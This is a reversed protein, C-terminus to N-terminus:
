ALELVTSAAPLEAADPRRLGILRASAVAGILAVAVAVWLADHLGAVYAAAGGHGLAGAAPVLAGFAAVGVAIGGQRFTDNTGAALGSQRAPAATLAVSSLAPNFLGCGIGCLVEGPLVVTWSSGTALFTMAAMGAAVLVLGGCILTGASVRGLLQSAAGAVFFLLVTAPLYVLGAQLASLGLVDQLYLTLYLYIAFFSASIAFAAVQAGAFPAHRFLSLALMPEKARREIALFAVLLVAAASLEGIIAASGWGLANGRLLALVLFLLSGILALQGALDVRRASEDRSERVHSVTLAMAVVGLPLNILFVSRWGLLSTLAGGVLPGFAFSAGIAAGYAALAGARERGAPFADALLALSPAFMLAAGVGQTARAGDLATISGALACGLSSLTFLAVGSSFVRRQGLRDALSGCTLVVSALALTYADVVWQVGDLGAHLDSAIHALATNVVAIDLMLMATAVCVVLLTGRRATM